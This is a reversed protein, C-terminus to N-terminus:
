LIVWRQGSPVTVTVGSAITIPGVSFANKGATISYNAAIDDANEYIAGGSFATANMEMKDAGGIRFDIRDDTDATISTDADADLILETGNMDLKAGATVLGSANLAVLGTTGSIDLNGNLDVLTTNLEIEDDANIDLDGDADSRINIASDRFQLQMDDNLILGDNHVHTLTVEDNAGFSLIAGDHQLELDQTLTVDGDSGIAIADVDSASGITKGDGIIIDDTFTAIGTLATTGSIEVNGNIDILTSALQIEGDAAIDLQGDTSSFVQINGDRFRLQRNTPLILGVDPIHTLTVDGDAGFSLVASDSKLKVDNGLVADGAVSLGGDTQLSGDTTSTANTTDDTKIIGSATITTSALTTTTAAAASGSGLIGDLTGTFGTATIQDTATIGDVFLNAWRVGTTGLDDTSDTDSVINGGSTLSSVTAAAPTGSGLVGDLTGTFGTATVESNFAAAGAASMDLTLATITSGGDNGTVVFDADSTNTHITFNGGIVDLEPTADLNFIFRETTADQFRVQAGDADLIIDGAVDLTLDGSSLDIETGDITINDVTIGGDVDLTGPLTLNNSADLVTAKSAPLCCFVFKTGSSFNVASDSNSSSIVTTRALTSSDSALTGLGVEFEANLVICYYTTNSNGVGALFTEFGQIAGGLTVTGTGTTTTSEKVRDNIVLAM